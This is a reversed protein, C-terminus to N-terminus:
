TSRRRAVGLGLAVLAAVLALGGLIVGVLSLTGANAGAEADRAIDATAPYQVPFQGATADRVDGFTDPGSTFTEDVATGEVFGFIRFAYQGAATPFFVSRYAGPEGFAPTLELARTQDGFRVEAQLTAELGEVPEDGRTVHLDLGSEEGAFVPEDLFGVEITYDGVEHEEHALASGAGVLVSLALGLVGARGM